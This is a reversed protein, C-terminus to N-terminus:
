WPGPSTTQLRAAEDLAARQDETLLRECAEYGVRDDARAMCERVQASWAGRTCVQALADRLGPLQDAAGRRLAGDIPSKDLDALAIAFYRSAVTSCPAVDRPTARCAAIMAVILLRRM